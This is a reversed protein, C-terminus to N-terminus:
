CVVDIPISYFHFLNKIMESYHISETNSFLNLLYILFCLYKEVYVFYLTHTNFIIHCKKFQIKM